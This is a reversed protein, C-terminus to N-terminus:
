RRNSFYKNMGIYKANWPTWNRETKQITIFTPEADHQEENYLHIAAAIAAYVEQQPDATQKPGNKKTFYAFIKTTLTLLLVICILALFVVAIATGALGFGNPDAEKIRESQKPIHYHIRECNGFSGETLQLAICDYGLANKGSILIEKSAANMGFAYSCCNFDVRSLVKTKVPIEGMMTDISKPCLSIMAIYSSDRKSSALVFLKNDYIDISVPRLVFQLDHRGKGTYITRVHHRRNISDTYFRFARTANGDKRMWVDVCNDISDIVAYIGLEPAYCASQPIFKLGNAQSCQQGANCQDCAQSLLQEAGKEPAGQPAAGQAHATGMLMMLGMLSVTLIHKINKM